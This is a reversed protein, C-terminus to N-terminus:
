SNTIPYSPNFPFIVEAESAVARGDVTAPHFRWTKVIDLVMGDLKNGMGRVLKESVVQGLADVDVAVVIKQESGPLLSRDTVAPRPSFVPFAPRSDEAADGNGTFAAGSGDGKTPNKPKGGGALKPLAKEVPLITKKSSEATAEPHKTHAGFDAVPMPVTVAHPGGAVELKALVELTPPESVRSGVATGVMVVLALVAGHTAVSLLAATVPRKEMSTPSRKTPNPEIPSHIAVEGQHLVTRNSSQRMHTEFPAFCLFQDLCFIVPNFNHSEEFFATNPVM